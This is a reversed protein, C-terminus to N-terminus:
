HQMQLQCLKKAEEEDLVVECKRTESVNGYEDLITLKIVVKPKITNIADM